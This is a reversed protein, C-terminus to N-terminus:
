REIYDVTHVDLDDYASLNYDDMDSLLRWRGLSVDCEALVLAIDMVAPEVPKKASIKSTLALEFPFAAILETDTGISADVRLAGDFKMFVAKALAVTLSPADLLLRFLASVSESLKFGSVLATATVTSGKLEADFSSSPRWVATGVVDDVVPSCVEAIATRDTVVAGACVANKLVAEIRM